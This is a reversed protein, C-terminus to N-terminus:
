ARFSINTRSSADTPANRVDAVMQAILQQATSQDISGGAIAAGLAQAAEAVQLVMAIRATFGTSPAPWGAIQSSTYGAEQMVQDYPVGIAVKGALVQWGPLDDIMQSQAWQVHVVVDRHGMISMLFEVFSEITPTMVRKRAACKKILPGTNERQTAANPMQGMADYFSMPTSCVFSMFKIYQLMPDLFGKPDAAALQVLQDVDKLLNIVGPRDEVVSTHADPPLEDVMDEDYANQDITASKQLAFRAPFGQADTTAMQVAILKNIANQPGYANYHEPVGYADDDTTRLHFIPIQGHPNPVPWGGAASAANALAAQQMAPTAALTTPAPGLTDAEAQLAAYLNAVSTDPPVLSNLFPYGTLLQRGAPGLRQAQEIDIPEDTIEDLPDVYPLYDQPKEGTAGNKTVLKVLWHDYYLNIRKGGTTTKFWRAAFLPVTEDEEDYIVCTTTPDLTQVQVGGSGDDWALAYGDGNILSKKVWRPFFNGLKNARWLKAWERQLAAAAADSDAPLTTLVMGPTDTGGPDNAVPAASTDAPDDAGPQGLVADRAALKAPSPADRTPTPADTGGPPPAGTQTPFVSPAAVDPGASLTPDSAGTDGTVSSSLSDNIYPSRVDDSLPRLLVSQVEIRNYAEDVVRGSFNCLYDSGTERLIDAIYETAFIEEINGKYFRQAQEYHQTRENFHDIVRQIDAQYTAVDRLDAASAPDQGPRYNEDGVLDLFNANANATTM